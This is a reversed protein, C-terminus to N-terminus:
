RKSRRKVPKEDVGDLPDVCYILSVFGLEGAKLARLAIRWVYEQQEMYGLHHFLPSTVSVRRLNTHRVAESAVTATEGVIAFERRIALALRRVIAVTSPRKPPPLSM